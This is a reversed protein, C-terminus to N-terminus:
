LLMAPNLPDTEESSPPSLNATELVINVIKPVIDSYDSSNCSKHLKVVRNMLYM